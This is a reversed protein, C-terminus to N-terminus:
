VGANGPPARTSLIEMSPFVVLSGVMVVDAPNHLDASAAQANM